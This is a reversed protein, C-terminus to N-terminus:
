CGPLPLRPVTLVHARRPASRPGFVLPRRPFVATGNGCPFLRKRRPFPFPPRRKRKRCCQDTSWGRWRGPM